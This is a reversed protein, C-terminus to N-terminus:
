QKTPPYVPDPGPQAFGSSQGYQPQGYMPQGNQPQGYMPQGNQPQGYQQQGYMPQGYQPQGYAPPQGYAQQGYQQQGIVTTNVGPRTVVTGVTGKKTRCCLYILVIFFVLGAIAGICAGIIAGVSLCTSSGTCVYGDLCCWDYGTCHNYGYLCYQGDVVAILLLIVFIVGDM